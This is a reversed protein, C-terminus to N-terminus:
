NIVYLLIVVHKPVGRKDRALKLNKAESGKTLMLASTNTRLLMGLSFCPLTHPIM